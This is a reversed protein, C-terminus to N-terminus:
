SGTCRLLFLSKILFCNPGWHGKPNTERPTQCQLIVPKFHADNQLASSGPLGIRLAMPPWITKEYFWQKRKRWTTNKLFRKGCMLALIGSSLNRTESGPCHESDNDTACRPSTNSMSPVCTPCRQTMNPDYKPCRQSM